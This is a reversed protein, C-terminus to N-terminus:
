YGANPSLTIRRVYKVNWSTEILVMTRRILYNFILKKVNWSTEILVINRKHKGYPCFVKVNWSTEILVAPSANVAAPSVDKCEMINRNIGRRRNM